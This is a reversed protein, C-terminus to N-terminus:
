REREILEQPTCGFHMRTFGCIQRTTMKILYRLGAPSIEPTRATQTMDEKTKEIIWDNPTM